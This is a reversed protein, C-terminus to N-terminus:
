ISKGGKQIIGLNEREQERIIGKLQCNTQRLEKNKETLQLVEDSLHKLEGENSKKFSEQLKYMGREIAARIEKNQRTAWKEKNEFIAPPTVRPMDTCLEEPVKVGLTRSQQLANEIRGYYERVSDHTATSGKIGRELGFLQQMRTGYDTQLQSLKRRDGMVEKASLRGDKTLPVVVCHIHPTREDVHLTFDVINKSGFKESAFKFNEIMWSELKKPDSEIAKMEKHSGTLVINLHTVADKRIATKGTYGEDIRKQIREQLPTRNKFRDYFYYKGESQHIFANNHSLQPNANPVHKTRDIHNGLGGAKGATGKEIHLVAFGM